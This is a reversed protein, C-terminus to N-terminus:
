DVTGSITVICGVVETSSVTVTITSPEPPSAPVEVPTTDSLTFSIQTPGFPLGDLVTPFSTPSLTGKSASVTITTGSVLRNTNIDGAMFRFLQFGANPIAFNVPTIECRNANGTFALTITTWIMRSSQCGAGKCGPGDWVGNPGNYVGNGNADIFEEFPDTSPSPLLGPCSKNVGDNRCGDDNKDIFPEGLDTFSEGTDYVGNGNADNFAEEGQVTALITVWGHRPHVTPETTSIGLGFTTNLGTILAVEDLPDAPGWIAVSAPNPAQTRFDAQAIGNTTIGSRDIAGAETSFSVSTGELVNFNGFRDAIFASIKAKKNSFVLGPLNIKDTAMNFHTASPVGGGISLPNSASSIEGTDCLSNSNADVCAIVKVPGAVTGSLLTTPAKGGTTSIAYFALMEQNPNAPTGTSTGLPGILTFAVKTGDLAPSGNKDKVSFSITATETQGSGKIGIVTPSASDFQISGIAAAAIVISITQTIDGSKATITVTGPKNLATFTTAAVGNVTTSTASITGLTADSVSYNVVTGDAVNGGDSKKVTASISSTGLVTLSSPTATVTISAPAGIVTGGGGTIGGGATTTPPLSTSETEIGCGYIFFLALLLTWRYKSM